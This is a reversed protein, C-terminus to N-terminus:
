RTLVEGDLPERWIKIGYVLGVPDLQIYAWYEDKFAVAGAGGALTHAAREPQKVNGGNYRSITRLINERSMRSAIAPVIRVTKVLGDNVFCELRTAQLPEKGDTWITLTDTRHESAGFRGTM